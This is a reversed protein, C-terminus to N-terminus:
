QKDSKNKKLFSMTPDFVYSGVIRKILGPLFEKDSYKELKTFEEADVNADADRGVTLDMDEVMSMACELMDKNEKLRESKESIGNLYNLVNQAFSLPKPLVVWDRYRGIAAVYGPVESEFTIDSDKLDGIHCLIKQIQRIGYMLEEVYLPQIADVICHNNNFANIVKEFAFAESLVLPANIVLSHVASIKDQVPADVSDLSSGFITSLLVEPEWEAWNEFGYKINLDSYIDYPHANLVNDETYTLTRSQQEAM